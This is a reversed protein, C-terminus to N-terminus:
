TSGTENREVVLEFACDDAVRKKTKKKTQRNEEMQEIKCNRMSHALASNKIPFHIKEKM